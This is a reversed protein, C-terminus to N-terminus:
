YYNGLSEEEIDPITFMMCVLYIMFMWFLVAIKPMGGNVLECGVIRAKYLDKNVPTSEFFYEGDFYIDLGAKQRLQINKYVKDSVITEVVQDNYVVELKYKTKIDERTIYYGSGIVVFIVTIIIQAKSM